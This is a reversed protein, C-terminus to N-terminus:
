PPFEDQQRWRRIQPSCVLRSLEVHIQFLPQPWPYTSRARRSVYFSDKRSTYRTGWQSRRASPPLRALTLDGGHGDSSGSTSSPPAFASFHRESRRCPHATPCAFPPSSSIHALRHDARIPVDRPARGCLYKGLLRPLPDRQPPRVRLISNSTTSTCTAHPASSSAARRPASQSRSQATATLRPSSSVRSSPRHRSRRVRPHHLLLRRDGRRIDHAIYTVTSRGTTAVSHRTSVPPKITGASQQLMRALLKIGAQDPEQVGAPGVRRHRGPEGHALPLRRPPHRRGRLLAPPTMWSCRMILLLSPLVHAYLITVGALEEVATIRTVITKHKALQQATVGLAVSLVILMAIPIRGIPPRPHQQPWAPLLVQVRCVAVFDGRRHLHGHRRPLLLRGGRAHKCIVPPTTTVRAWERGEDIEGRLFCEPLSEGMLAPQDVSVDISLSLSIATVLSSTAPKSPPRHTGAVLLGAAGDGLQAIRMRGQVELVRM